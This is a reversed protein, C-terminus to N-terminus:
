EELIREEQVIQHQSPGMGPWLATEADEQMFENVALLVEKPRETSTQPPLAIAMSVKSKIVRKLGM